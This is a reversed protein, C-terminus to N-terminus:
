GKKQSPILKDSPLDVAKHEFALVLNLIQCLPVISPSIDLYAVTFVSTTTLAANANKWFSDEVVAAEEVDADADKDETRDLLLLDHSPM